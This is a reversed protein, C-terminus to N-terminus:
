LPDDPPLTAPRTSWLFGVALASGLAIVIAILGLWIAADSSEKKTTAQPGTVDPIALAEIAPAPGPVTPGTEAEEPAGPREPPGTWPKTAGDAYTQFAKFVLQGAQRPTALFRFDAYEGPAIRGGSWVAGRVRRDATLLERRRWGAAPAFQAVTLGRPFLVRVATTPVDREAPVRVVLEQEANLRPEAPLVSVHAAATAPLALAVLALAAPAARV